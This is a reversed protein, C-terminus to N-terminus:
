LGAAKKLREKEIDSLVPNQLADARAQLDASREQLTEIEDEPAAQRPRSFDRSFERQDVLEPWDAARTHDTVQYDLDPLTKEITCASFLLACAMGTFFQGSNRLIAALQVM